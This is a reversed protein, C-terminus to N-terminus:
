GMALIASPGDNNDDRRWECPDRDNLVLSTFVAELQCLLKGYTHCQLWGNPTISAMRQMMAMLAAWAGIDQHGSKKDHLGPLVHEELQKQLYYGHLM